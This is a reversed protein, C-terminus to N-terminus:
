KNKTRIYAPLKALPMRAGALHIYVITYSRFNEPAKISFNVNISEGPNLTVPKFDIKLKKEDTEINEIEIPHDTNNTLVVSQESVEDAPIQQFDLFRPQMELESRVHLEFLVTLKPQEESSTWINVSRMVKGYFGETVIQIPIIISDSKQLEVPKFDLVTCKCSSHINQIKVSKESSNKLVIDYHVTDGELLNDIVVKKPYIIANTNAILHSAMLFLIICTLFTRM